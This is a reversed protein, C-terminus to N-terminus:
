KEGDGAIFACPGGDHSAFIFSLGKEVDNQSVASAFDAIVNHGEERRSGETEQVRRDLTESTM